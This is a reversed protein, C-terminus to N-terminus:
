PIQFRHITYLSPTCVSTNQFVSIPEWTPDPALIPATIVKSKKAQVASNIEASGLCLFPLVELDPSVILTSLGRAWPLPRLTIAYSPSLM